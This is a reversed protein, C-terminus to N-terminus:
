FVGGDDEVPKEPEELKRKLESLEAELYMYKDWLAEFKADDQYNELLRRLGFTYNDDCEVRCFERFADHIKQNEETDNAKISFRIFKEDAPISRMEKNFDVM